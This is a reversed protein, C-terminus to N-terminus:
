ILFRTIEYKTLRCPRVHVSQLISESQVSPTYWNNEVHIKIAQFNVDGAVTWHIKFYNM